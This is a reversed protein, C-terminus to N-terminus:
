EEQGEPEPQEPAADQVGAPAQASLKGELERIQRNIREHDDILRYELYRAMAELLVSADESRNERVARFALDLGKQVPTDTWAMGLNQEAQNLLELKQETGSEIV